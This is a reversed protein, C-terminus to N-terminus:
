TNSSLFNPAVSFFFLMRLTCIYRCHLLVQMACCIQDTVTAGERMEIKYDMRLYPSFFFAVVNFFFFMKYEKMM